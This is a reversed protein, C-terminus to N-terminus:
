RSSASSPGMCPSTRSLRTRLWAAELDSMWTMLSRSTLARLRGSLATQQLYVSRYERLIESSRLLAIVEEEGVREVNRFSEFFGDRGMAVFCLTTTESEVEDLGRGTSRWSNEAVAGLDPLDNRVDDRVSEFVRVLASDQDLPALHNILVQAVGEVRLLVPDPDADRDRVRSVADGLLLEFVDEALELVDASDTVAFAICTRIRFLRDAKTQSDDRPDNAVETSLQLDLGLDAFARLEGEDEGETKRGTFGSRIAFRYRRGIVSLM